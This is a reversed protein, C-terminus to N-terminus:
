RSKMRTFTGRQSRMGWESSQRLSVYTNHRRLVDRRMERPLNPRSRRTIPGEFKDLLDGSRSFAQDVCIKFAGIDELVKAILSM